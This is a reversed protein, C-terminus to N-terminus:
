GQAACHVEQDLTLAFYRRERDPLRWRWPRARAEALLAADDLNSRDDM